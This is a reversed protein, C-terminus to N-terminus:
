FFRRPKNRGFLNYGSSLYNALENSRPDLPPPAMGTGSFREAMMMAKFLADTLHDDARKRKTMTGKKFRYRAMESLLAPCDSTVKLTGNALMLCVKEIIAVVSNHKKGDAGIMHAPMPLMNLGLGRYVEATTSGDGTVRGGDHPWSVPITHGGMALVAQANEEPTLRACKWEKVAIYAEGVKVVKVAAFPGTTHPFDLGIIAEGEGSEPEVTYHEQPLRFIMGQKSLPRGNVSAEYFPSGHNKDKIMQQQESTMWTADDVGYYVVHRLEKNPCDEFLEVLLDAEEEKPCMGLYLYGMTANTRQSMEELVEEKPAEDIIIVDLTRGQIRRAGQDYSFVRLTSMGGSSHRVLMDGIQGKRGGGVYNFDKDAFDSRRLFGSGRDNM